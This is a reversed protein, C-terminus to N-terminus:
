THDAEDRGVFLETERPRSIQPGLFDRGLIMHPLGQPALDMIEDMIVMEIATTPLSHPPLVRVETQLEEYYAGSIDSVHFKGFM